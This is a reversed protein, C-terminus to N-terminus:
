LPNKSLGMWWSNRMSSFHKKDEGHSLEEQESKATRSSRFSFKIKASKEQSPFLSFSFCFMGPLFSLAVCYFSSLSIEHKIILFVFCISNCPPSLIYVSCVNSYCKINTLRSFILLPHYFPLCHPRKIARNNCSSRFDAIRIMTLLKVSSFVNKITDSCLSM